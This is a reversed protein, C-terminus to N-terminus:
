ALVARVVAQAALDLGPPDLREARVVARVVPAHVARSKAYAPDYHDDILARALGTNDGAAYLALWRDVMDHGKFHRLTDLRAKLRDPDAGRKSVYAIWRGDPSWAPLLEDHAGSTLQETQGSAVDLLVLHTRRHDLYGVGDEKFQYRDIVIPSPNKPTATGSPFEADRAVLVLRKSDPSWVFDDVGSPHSTLRRPKGGTAPMLWVQTSPEEANAGEAEKAGDAPADSLFAISRGDPSWRPQWESVEATDTLRQRSRGDHGVRWLDSQTLDADTNASSATYVIVEGDPSFGPESLDVLRALDDLSLPQTANAAGAFLTVALLLCTRM